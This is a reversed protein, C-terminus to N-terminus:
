STGIQMVKRYDYLRPRYFRGAQVSEIFDGRVDM